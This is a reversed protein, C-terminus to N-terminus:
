GGRSRRGAHLTLTRSWVRPGPTSLVRGRFRTFRTSNMAPGIFSVSRLICLLREADVPTSDEFVTRRSLPIGALAFLQVVAQAMDRPRRPAADQVASTVGSMFPTDAPEVTVIALAADTALVRRLEQGALEADIFHVADAILALDVAGDDVPLSEAAAHVGEVPLGLRTADSRLAELMEIAPEFARVCFGRRALPVALHGLGAGLDVIRAGPAPALAAIADVLPEPYSPRSRYDRVMRNFIWREPDELTVSRRGAVM